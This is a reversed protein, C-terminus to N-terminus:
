AFLDTDNSMLEVLRRRVAGKGRKEIIAQMAEEDEGCELIADEELSWAFDAASRAAINEDGSPLNDGPLPRDIPLSNTATTANASPPGLADEQAQPRILAPSNEVEIEDAKDDDDSLQLDIMEDMKARSSEPTPKLPSSGIGSSQRAKRVYRAARSSSPPAYRGLARKYEMQPDTPTFNLGARHQSAPLIPQSASDGNSTVEHERDLLPASRMAENADEGIMGMDRLLEDALAVRSPLGSVASVQNGKNDREIAEEFAREAAGRMEGLIRDTEPLSRCEEYVRLVWEESVGHNQAMAQVFFQLGARNILVQDAPSIGHAPSPIDEALDITTAFSTRRTQASGSAEQRRISERRSPSVAKASLSKWDLSFRNRERGKKKLDVEPLLGQKASFGGFTLRRNSKADDRVVERVKGKELLRLRRVHDATIFPDSASTSPVSPTSNGPTPTKYSSRTEILRALASPKSAIRSPGAAANPASSAQDIHTSAIRIEAHRLSSAPSQISKTAAQTRMAIAGREIPLGKPHDSRNTSTETTFSQTGHSQVSLRNRRPPWESVEPQKSSSEIVSTDSDSSPDPNPIGNKSVSQQGNVGSFDNGSAGSTLQLPEEKTNAPSTTVSARHDSTGNPVPPPSPITPAFSSPAADVPQQISPPEPTGFFDDDNRKSAVKRAPKPIAVKNHNTASAEIGNIAEIDDVDPIHDTSSSSSKKRSHQKISHQEVSSKNLKGEADLSTARMDWYDLDQSLDPYLLEQDGGGKAQIEDSPAVVAHNPSSGRLAISLRLERLLQARQEESLQDLAGFSERIKKM